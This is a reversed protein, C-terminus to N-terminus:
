TETTETIYESNPKMEYQTFGLVDNVTFGEISDEIYFGDDEDDERHCVSLQLRSRM